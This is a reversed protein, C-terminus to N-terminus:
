ACLDHRVSESGAGETADNKEEWNTLFYIQGRIEDIRM